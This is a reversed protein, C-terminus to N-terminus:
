REPALDSKGPPELYDNLVMPVLSPAREDILLAAEWPSSQITTIKAMLVVNRINTFTNKCLLNLFIFTFLTLCDDEKKIFLAKINELSM